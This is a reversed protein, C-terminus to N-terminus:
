TANISAGEEDYHRTKKGNKEGIGLPAQQKSVLSHDNIKATENM